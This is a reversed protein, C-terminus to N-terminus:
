KIKKFGTLKIFRLILKNMISNDIKYKNINKQGNLHLRFHGYIQIQNLDKKVIKM